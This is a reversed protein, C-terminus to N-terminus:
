QWDSLNDQLVARIPSAAPLTRKLEAYIQKRLLPPVAQWSKTLLLFSCRHKFLRTKLDLERLLRGSAPGIEQFARTYTPDGTVGNAPLSAEKQFTIYAAFEKAFEAMRETKNERALYIAEVVRNLFGAQHEHILHPLIDSTSLPYRRIDCNRGPPNPITTLTDGDLVSIVNAHNLPLTIGGTLHWGGFRQELPVMHGIEEHRYNDLSGGIRNVAVSGVVLGPLHKSPSDAHCNMCRDSRVFKPLGQTPNLRDFIFFVMGAEPDLSAIELRGSPVFGVSTDSNFYVARPNGPNILGSQLSTASFVLLQSSVPIDLKELLSLLLPLEGSTDFQPNTAMLQSFRDQPVRQFYNHPPEDFPKYLPAAPAAGALLLCWVSVQIQFKYDFFKM